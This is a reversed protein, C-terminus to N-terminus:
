EKGGDRAKQAEAMFERNGMKGLIFNLILDRKSQDIGV